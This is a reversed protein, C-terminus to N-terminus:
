DDATLAEGKHKIKTENEPVGSLKGVLITAM